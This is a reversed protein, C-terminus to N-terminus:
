DDKKELALTRANWDQAWEEGCVFTLQKSFFHLCRTSMLVEQLTWGRTSHISSSLIRPLAHNATAMMIHNGIRTKTSIFSRSGARVGPLGANADSGTQQVITAYAAAYIKHMMAVQDHKESALDQVICLSDVWLYRYGLKSVLKIADLVTRPISPARDRLSGKERLADINEVNSFLRRVGGWVYSLAFYQESLTSDVICYQGVDVLRIKMTADQSGLSRINACHIHTQDCRELWSQILPVDVTTSRVWSSNMHTRKSLNSSKWAMSQDSSQRDDFHTEIHGVSHWFSAGPQLSRVLIREGRQYQMSYQIGHLTALPQDLAWALFSKIPLPSLLHLVLMCIHCSPRTLLQFLTGSPLGIDERWVAKPNEKSPVNDDEAYFQLADLDGFLLINSLTEDRTSTWRRTETARAQTARLYDAGQPIGWIYKECVSCLEEKDLLAKSEVFEDILAEVASFIRNRTAHPKYTHIENKNQHSKQFNALFQPTRSRTLASLSNQVNQLRSGDSSYNLEM